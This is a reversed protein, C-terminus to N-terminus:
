FNYAFSNNYKELSSRQSFWKLTWSERKRSSQFKRKRSSRWLQIWKWPERRRYHKSHKLLRPSKFVVYSRSHDVKPFYISSSRLVTSWRIRNRDARRKRLTRPALLLLKRQFHLSTKQISEPERSLKRRRKLRSKMHKVRVIPSRRTNKISSTLEEM